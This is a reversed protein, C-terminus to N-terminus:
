NMYQNMWQNTTKRATEDSLMPLNPFLQANAVINEAIRLKQGLFNV